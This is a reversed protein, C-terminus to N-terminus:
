DSLLTDGVFLHGQYISRANAPFAPCVIAVGGGLRDFLADAVPGINGESTSDFTSCYKFFMQRAGNAQLADLTKCSMAIADDPAITRSKLAVVVADYDDFPVSDDPVGMVQITRMGSRSLMLALDTAGTIDDAICGLLM